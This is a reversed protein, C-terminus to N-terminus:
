AREHVSFGYGRAPRAELVREHTDARSCARRPQRTRALEPCCVLLFQDPEVTVFSSVFCVKLFGNFHAAQSDLGLLAEESTQQRDSFEAPIGDDDNSQQIGM